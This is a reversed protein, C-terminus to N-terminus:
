RIKKGCGEVASELMKSFGGKASEIKRAPRKQASEQQEGKKPPKNVPRASRYNSDGSEEDYVHRHHGKRGERDGRCPSAHDEYSQKVPRTPRYYNDCSNEGYLHRNHGERM